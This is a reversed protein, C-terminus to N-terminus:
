NASRSIEHWNTGTSILIIIDDASTTFDGALILNSGDTFTLIGDFQLIVMTGADKATISTIADTGTIDFYNGDTGLTMSATSAVDSGKAFVFEKSSMTMKQNISTLNLKDSQINASSSVDANIISSDKINDVGGSLYNFIADENATVASSSITEGSTYTNQRTPAAGTVFMMMLVLLLLKYIKMNDEHLLQTLQIM